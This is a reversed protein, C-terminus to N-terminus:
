GCIGQTQHFGILAAQAHTVIPGDERELGGDIM